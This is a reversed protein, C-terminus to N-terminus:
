LCPYLDCTLSDPTPEGGCLPFPAAPDAGSTFLYALMYGVDAINAGGDDNADLASLCNTPFGLFLYELIAVADTIDVATDQNVDGRLFAPGTTGGPFCTIYRGVLDEQDHAEGIGGIEVSHSIMASSGVENVVGGNFTATGSTFEFLLEGTTLPSLRDIFGSEGVYDVPIEFDGLNCTSAVIGEVSTIGFGGDSCTDGIGTLAHIATPSDFCYTDGGSMFVNGGANLYAALAAGEPATLTYNQPFTGLEVWVREFASMAIGQTDLDGVTVIDAMLTVQSNALLANFIAEASDTDGFETGQFRLVLDTVDTDIVLMSCTFPPGVEGGISPSLSYATSGPVPTIDVYTTEAGPVTDILVGNRYIDIVDYEASFTGGNNVWDLQVDEEIQACVLDSVPNVNSVVVVCSTPTSTDGAASGVISYSYTGSGPNLDTYSTASGALTGIVIGGRKVTVEDYAGGNIWTLEVDPLTVTCSLGTVIPVGIGINSFYLDTGDCHGVWIDNAGDGNFDAIAVDYTGFHHMPLYPASFPDSLSGSDNRLFAMRRLCGPVDTDADAITVDDDGDGDLEALHVNGGFASTLPSATLSTSSWTVPIAGVPSSNIQFQDQGDQVVYFDNLGDGNLDGIDFHYAASVALSETTSFFGPNSAGDNYAVTISPTSNKIIEPYGDGNLDKIMGATAFASTEYGLPLRSNTEESFFGSGDNILLKDELSNQYDVIYLDDVGNGTVDGVGVACANPEFVGTSLFPLRFSEDSLGLWNGSLDEGLNIYVRPQQGPSADNGANAFVVDPWADGNINAAMVDRANDGDPFDVSSIFEPAYTGTLDTMVGDVNIFLVNARNGFTTFPLKRAVVLDVDGDMDFDATAYDKEEPDSVALFPDAIINTATVSSFDLWQAEVSAPVGWAGITLVCTLVLLSRQDM